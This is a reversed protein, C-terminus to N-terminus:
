APWLILKDTVGCAVLHLAQCSCIVHPICCGKMGHMARQMLAANLSCFDDQLEQCRWQTSPEIPLGAKSRQIGFIINSNM